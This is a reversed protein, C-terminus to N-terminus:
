LYVIRLNPLIFYVLPKKFNINAPNSEMHKIVDCINVSIMYKSLFRILVELYSPNILAHIQIYEKNCSIVQLSTKLPTVVPHM